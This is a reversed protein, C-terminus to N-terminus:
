QKVATDFKPDYMNYIEIIRSDPMEYEVMECIPCYDGKAKAHIYHKECECDWYDDHTEEGLSWLQKQTLRTKADKEATKM